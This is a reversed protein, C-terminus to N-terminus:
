VYRKDWYAKDDLKIDHMIVQMDVKEEYTLHPQLARILYAILADRKATAPIVQATRTNRHKTKRKTVAPNIIGRYRADDRAIVQIAAQTRLLEDNSLYKAVRDKLYAILKNRHKTAPITIEYLNSM